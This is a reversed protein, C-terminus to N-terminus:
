NNFVEQHDLNSSQSDNFTSQQEIFKQKKAPPEENNFDDSDLNDKLNKESSEIMKYNIIM